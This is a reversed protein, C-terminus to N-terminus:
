GPWGTRSVIRGNGDVIITTPQDWRIHIQYPDAAGLTLIEAIRNKSIDSGYKPNPDITDNWEYTAEVTIAYTGDAQARVTTTGSHRFDGTTADTGHLYQYGVIGEGNQIAQHFQDAFPSSAPGGSLYRRLAEQAIRDTRPQMGEIYTGDDVTGRRLADNNMMYASWTPDNVLTWDDGGALYRDLIAQGAWDNSLDGLDDRGTLRWEDGRVRLGSRGDPDRDDGRDASDGAAVLAGALALDIQSGRRLAAEIEALIADRQMARQRQHAVLEEESGFTKPESVDSVVGTESISFEHASALSRATAIHREVDALDTAARYLALKLAGLSEVQAAIRRSLETRAAFAGISSDDQWPVPIADLDDGVRQYGTATAKVTDGAAALAGASWRGLDAFTLAM